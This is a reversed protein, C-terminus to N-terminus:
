AVGKNRRECETKYNEIAILLKKKLEADIDEFGKRTKMKKPDKLDKEFINLFYYYPIPVVTTIVISLMWMGIAYYWTGSIWILIGLIFLAITVPYTILVQWYPMFVGTFNAPLNNYRIVMLATRQGMFLYTYVATLILYLVLYTTLM